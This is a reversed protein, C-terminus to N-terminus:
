SFTRFVEKFYPRNNSFQFVHITDAKLTQFKPAFTLGIDSQQFYGGLIPKFQRLIM